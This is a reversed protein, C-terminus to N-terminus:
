WNKIWKTEDTGATGDAVSWLDFTPNHGNLSPNSAKM